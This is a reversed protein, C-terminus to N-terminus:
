KRVQNRGMKKARYLAKDAAKVVADPTALKETRQAVGISITVSVSKAARFAGRTRNAANPRTPRDSTRLAM